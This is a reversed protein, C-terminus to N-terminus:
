PLRPPEALGSRAISAALADLSPIRPCRARRGLPDAAGRRSPSPPGFGRAATRAALFARGGCTSGGSAFALLTLTAVFAGLASSILAGQTRLGFLRIVLLMKDAKSRPKGHLTSRENLTEDAM